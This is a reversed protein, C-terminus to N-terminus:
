NEPFIPIGSIQGGIAKYIILLTVKGNEPPHDMNEDLITKIRRRNDATRFLM